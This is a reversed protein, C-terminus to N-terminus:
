LILLSNVHFFGIFVFSDDIARIFDLEIHGITIQRRGKLFIIIFLYFLYFM